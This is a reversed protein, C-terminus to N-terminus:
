FSGNPRTSFRFATFAFYAGLLDKKEWGLMSVLAARVAM